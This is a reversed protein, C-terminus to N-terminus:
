PEGKQRRWQISETGMQREDEDGTFHRCRRRNRRAGQLRLLAPMQKPDDPVALESAHSAQDLGADEGDPLM